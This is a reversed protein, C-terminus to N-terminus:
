SAREVPSPVWTGDVVQQHGLYARLVLYFPAEPVPLWVTDEPGSEHGLHLTLSGDRAPRLGETLTNIAYRDIPNPVLGRSARDYATVSWFADVPPPTFRLRYSGSGGDLPAGRGDVLVTYPGSEERTTGGLGVFNTAARHLYNYGYAGSSLTRWGSDGAPAGRATVAAAILRRADALGLAVAEHVHPAWRAPDLPERGGVGLPRFRALLAEEQVPHGNHRLVADLARLVTAGDFGDDDAPVAPWSGDAEAARLDLSEALVPRLVVRDQLSCVQAVDEASRVFIRMLAWM